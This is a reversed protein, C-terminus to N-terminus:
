ERVRFAGVTMGTAASYSINVWGDQDVFRPILAIMREGGAPVSVQVDPNFAIAGEPTPTNPDDITVTHASTDTNKVHLFSVTTTRPKVRDGTGSAAAYTPGVGSLLVDQVTLDAM